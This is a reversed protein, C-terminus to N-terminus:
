GAEQARESAPRAELELLRAAVEAQAAPHRALVEFMAERVALWDPAVLVNVTQTPRDDLQGTLKGILELTKNLRDIASLSLAHRGEAKTAELISRAEEYLEEVRDLLSAARRDERKEALKVTARSLHSLKHRNLADKSIGYKRAIEQNNLGSVLARDIAALDPHNCTICPRGPGRTAM